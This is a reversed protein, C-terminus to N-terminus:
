VKPKIKLLGQGYEDLPPPGFRKVYDGDIWAAFSTIHRIGRKAYTQLDDLFMQGNWPIKKLNQRKWGSFLSADLWYELAQADESGFVELNADLDDLIKGHLRGKQGVADRRSLPTDMRRHIPAFEMFIGAEPKVQTPAQMTNLYTLHALRARPDQRRLARLLHNELLLAQDSDSLGRCKPCFCMPKGDDIWYFYRGTTPRLIKAYHLANECIIDLAAKSHVCLNCDAVREGKKNMRFMKADKKFLERPLLDGLAHLEHEIELGSERCAQMFAQGADTAVFQSVQSPTIHTGITSLGAQKAKRPWDWTQMDKPVLIVGRTKFFSESTTSDTKDAHAWGSTLALTSAFTSAISTKLFRRRSALRGGTTHM